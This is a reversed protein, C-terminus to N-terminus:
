DDESWFSGSIPDPSFSLGMTWRCRQEPASGGIRGVIPLPEAEWSSPYVGPQSVQCASQGMATRSTSVRVTDGDVRLADILLDELKVTLGHVLENCATRVTSYLPGRGGDVGIAVVHCDALTGQLIEEVTVVGDAAGGAAGDLDAVLGGSGDKSSFYRPLVAHELAGLAVAGFNFDLSHSEITLGGDNELQAAFSGSVPERGSGVIRRLDYWRTRCSKPDDDGLCQRDGTWRFAIENWTQTAAGEPLDLQPTGDVISPLVDADFRMPGRVTFHRLTDLIDATVETATGVAPNARYVEHIVLADVVTRLADRGLSSGELRDLLSQIRQLFRSDTDEPIASEALLDLLGKVSGGHSEPCLEEGNIGVAGPQCGVLFSGPSAVLLGFLRVFREVKDPIADVLDFTHTVSYPGQFVPVHDVMAIDVDTLRGPQVVGGEACGYTLEVTPESVNAAPLRYGRAWVTYSESAELRQDFSYTAGLRGTDSVELRKTEEALAVPLTGLDVDGSRREAYGLVLEDCSVSGPFVLVQSDGLGAEGDYMVDVVYAGRGSPRIYVEWTLTGMGPDDTRASVRVRGENDGINLEVAAVGDVGTLASSAPAFEALDRGSEIAYYVVNNSSARGAGDTVRAQLFISRGAEENRTCSARTSDCGSEDLHSFTGGDPPDEGVPPEQPGSNGPGTVDGSCGAVVFLCVLLCIRIM